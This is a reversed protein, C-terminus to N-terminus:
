KKLLWASAEHVSYIFASVRGESARSLRAVHVYILFQSTRFETLWRNYPIPPKQEKKNSSTPWLKFQQWLKKSNGRPLFHNTVTAV